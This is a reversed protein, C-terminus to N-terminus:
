LVKETSFLLVALQWPMLPVFNRSLQNAPLSKDDTFTNVEHADTGMERCDDYRM